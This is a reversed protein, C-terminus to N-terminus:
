RGNMIFASVILAIAMGFIFFDVRNFKLKKNCDKPYPHLVYEFSESKEILKKCRKEVARDMNLYIKTKM